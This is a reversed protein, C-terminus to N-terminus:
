CSRRRSTEYEDVHVRRGGDARLSGEVVGGFLNMFEVLLDGHSM